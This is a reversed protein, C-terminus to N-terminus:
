VQLFIQESKVATQEPKIVAITNQRDTPTRSCRSSCFSGKGADSSSTLINVKHYKHLLVCQKNIATRELGRRMREKFMRNTHLSKMITVTSSFAPGRAPGTFYALRLNRASIPESAAKLGGRGGRGPELGIFLCWNIVLQSSLFGQGSCRRGESVSSPTKETKERDLNIRDHQPLLGNLWKVNRPMNWTRDPHHIWWTPKKGLWKWHQAKHALIHNQSFRFSALNASYKPSGPLIFVYDESECCVVKMYLSGLYFFFWHGCRLVQVQKILTM